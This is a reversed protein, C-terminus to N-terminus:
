RKLGKGDGLKLVTVNEMKTFFADEIQADEMMIIQDAAGGGDIV